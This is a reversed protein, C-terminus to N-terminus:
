EGAPPAAPVDKVSLDGFIMRLNGAEAPRYLVIVKGADGLKVGEGFYEFQGAKKQTMAFMMARMMKKTLSQMDAAIADGMKEPHDKVMDEAAKQAAKKALKQTVKLYGQMTFVSEPFVGDNIDALMKLGDLLDKESLDKLSMDMKQVKYDKPIDQRFLSDELSEDFRFESMAIQANNLFPMDMEMRVPIATEADAWIKMHMGDQVVDFGMTKQGDIIKEGLPTESGEIMKKFNDLPNKNQDEMLEPPFGGFDMVVAMKQKPVFSIVKGKQTDTITYTGVVGPMTSKVFEQRMLGPEKNFMKMTMTQPNGAPDKMDIHLLCSMTYADRVHKQVDAFAISPGKGVTMMLIAAGVAIVIGAAVALQIIRRQMIRFKREQPAPPEDAIKPSTEATTFADLVKERLARRYAPDPQDDVHLGDMMQQIQKEDQCM